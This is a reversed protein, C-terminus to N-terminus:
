NGGWRNIRPTTGGKHQLHITDLEKGLLWYFVCCNAILLASSLVILVFDFYYGALGIMLSTIATGVLHVWLSTIRKEAQIILDYEEVELIPLLGWTIFLIISFLFKMRTEGGQLYFIWYIGTSSIVSNIFHVFGFRGIESIGEFFSLLSIHNKAFSKTLDIDRAVSTLETLVVLLISVIIANIQPEAMTM